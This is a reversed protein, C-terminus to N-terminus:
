WKNHLALRTAQNLTLFHPIFGCLNLQIDYYFNQQVLCASNVECVYTLCTKHNQSFLLHILISFLKAWRFPLSVKGM